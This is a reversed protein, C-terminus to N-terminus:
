PNPAPPREEVEVVIVRRSRFPGFGRTRVVYGVWFGETYEWWRFARGRTEDNVAEPPDGGTEVFRERIVEIAVRAMLEGGPERAAIASLWQRLMGRASRHYSVTVRM